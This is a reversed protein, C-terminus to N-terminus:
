DLLDRLFYCLENDVVNAGKNISFLDELRRVMDLTCDVSTSDGFADQLSQSSADEAALTDNVNDQSGDREAGRFLRQIERLLLHLTKPFVNRDILLSDEDEMQTRLKSLAAKLHQVEQRDVNGRKSLLPSSAFKEMRAIADTNSAASSDEAISVKTTGLTFYFTIKDNHAIEGVGSALAPALGQGWLACIMGARIEPDSSPVPPLDTLCAMRSYTSHHQVLFSHLLACTDQLAATSVPLIHQMRLLRVFYNVIAAVDPAKSNTPPPASVDEKAESQANISASVSLPLKEIATITGNQLELTDFLVAEHKQVELALNLYHFAAQVHADESGAILKQGFLDVLEILALRVLQRDYGGEISSKISGTFAEVCEEFRQALKKEDEVPSVTASDIQTRTMTGYLKKSLIVGKLLLLQAKTTPMRQTTHDIAQIGNEVSQLAREQRTQISESDPNLPCELLVQALDAHVQVFEPIGPQYINLRKAAQQDSCVGIWGDHELLADLVREAESLRENVANLAAPQSSLLAKSRLLSSLAQLTHVYTLSVSTHSALAEERLTCLERETKEREGLFVEAQLKLSELHQRFHEEGTTAAEQIATQAGEFAARYHTQALSCAVAQARCRAVFTGRGHVLSYKLKHDLELRLQHEPGTPIANYESIADMASSRSTSWEGEYFALYSLQLHIDARIRHIQLKDWSVSSPAHETSTDGNAEEDTQAPPVPVDSPKIILLMMQALKKAASRVIAADRDYRNEHRALAVALHLITVLIHGVLAEHYYKKLDAQTQEANLSILWNLATRNSEDLIPKSDHFIITDLEPVGTSSRPTSGGRLLKMVVAFAEQFRGCQVFAEIRFRRANAVHKTDELCFEAVYEYGTIIPMATTAYQYEYQLLVEPVLVLMISLTFPFVRDPDTLLKRGPWFQGLIRYSGFLFCKTPHPLSCSYFRTFIAAAMLAYDITKHLKNGSSLMILKSLVSCCQMGVWLEDGAITDKNSNSGGSELFQDAPPSLVERWLAGVNLTSFANDLSELWSKTASKVDGCALHFDGAEQLAQCVIRKQRKQRSLIVCRNYSAIVQRRLALLEEQHRHANIGDSTRKDLRRYKKVLEHCTNLAQHSKNIASSLDDYIESLNALKELELDRDTILEQIRQEMTQKNARFTIEEPSLVEEVVLRSKKKKKKAEQEQFAAVYATLEEEAAKLLTEQHNVIQQQAYILIPFNQESFRTGETSSGCLTHYRSGKQVINKWDKFSCFAKLAYAMLQALWTQDISLASTAAYVVTSLAKSQEASASAPTTLPMVTTSAANSDPSGNMATDMMDLLADVCTSLHGLRAPSTGIRSPAIWALWVANWLQQAAAQLGQWCSALRFLKCCGATKELLEGFLRDIQNGEPVDNPDTQVVSLEHDETSITERPTDAELANSSTEDENNNGPHLFDYTCDETDPGNATDVKEVTDCLKTIKRFLLVSQIFFLEGCWRYLYDDDAGALTAPVTGETEPTESIKNEQDNRSSLPNAEDPAAVDKLEPLLEGGGLSELTARFQNSIEGAVKLSSLIKEMQSIGNAGSGLVAGCVKSAFEITRRDSSSHQELTAFVKVLDNGAAQLLETLSQMGGAEKETESASRPTAQPTNSQSKDKTAAAAAGKAGRPTAASAAAPAPTSVEPSGQSSIALKFLAVVERLSEHEKNHVVHVQEPQTPNQVILPITVRSIDSHAEQAIRFLEFGVRACINRTDGDWKESPIVHLAQYFTVLAAFTLGDCSGKLHLLPLLLHYGKFCLVRIAELNDTACAIEIAMSIKRSDELTKTQTMTLSQADLDSATILKGDRELDGPEDHCLILLAQICLNLTPVPFQAVIDRKLAQRYFPNAMWSPRGACVHSAVANYLYHAAKNARGALQTDYCAKALYGYCMPLSLPNLAVVPESTEGISNIVEHKSDFAAVAFVYSENPLLGSITVDLHPPYVPAATGTLHNSNLSVATGVGTAKAFVLYYEVSRKRLSPLSPRYEVIQVTIASSSRSIVIPALPVISETTELKRESASALQRCLKEEQQEVQQLLQISEDAITCREKLSKQPHVLRQINLLVRAYGNQDCEEVLKMEAASIVSNAQLPVGPTGVSPKSNTQPLVDVMSAAQLELRYSLLTLDVQVCCLDQHVGGFQSGTGRVGVRDRPNAGESSSNSGSPDSISCSFSFKSIPTTAGPDSERDVVSHFHSAFNVLENRRSNIRELCQRVVQSGKRAKGRISLLTALRLCVRGHLLLDEFKVATFTFHITLLLECTLCVFPRSMQSPETADLEKLMPVAFERWMQLAVSTMLEQNTRSITGDGHFVCDQMAKSLRVLFKSAPIAGSSVLLQQRPNAKLELREEESLSESSLWSQQIEHLAEFLELLCSIISADRESSTSKLRARASKVLLIMQEDPKGLQFCHRIVSLHFSVPFITNDLASQSALEESEVLPKLMPTVIEMVFAFLESMVENTPPHPTAPTLVFTGQGGNKQKIERTLSEMADIVARMQDRVVPFAAEITSRTLPQHGAAAKVRTALMASTTEAQTLVHQVEVPLPMDLEEEKRLRQVVQQVYAACAVASKLHQDSRMTEKLALDEYCDCIASGLQLRWMIYKTTSLAVASEMALLSWKLYAVVERSFGLAQLPKAISYIFVSGNLTLWAFQGSYQREMAVATEMGLRLFTLAEIMKELRGPHKVFGDSRKQVHFCCMAVGFLSRVYTQGELRSRKVTPSLTSALIRELVGQSGSVAVQEPTKAKMEDLLLVKEYFFVSAARFEQAHYFKDGFVLFLETKQTMNIQDSTAQMLRDVLPTLKQAIDGFFAVEQRANSVDEPSGGFSESTLEKVQKERTLQLVASFERTFQDVVVHTDTAGHEPASAKSVDESEIRIRTGVKKAM